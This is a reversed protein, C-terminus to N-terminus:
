QISKLTGKPLASVISSKQLTMETNESVAIVIYSDSIKVIRGLIGGATMVEDGKTLSTILNRHEKARKSQPRWVAFYMFVVFIGLMVMLPIGGGPQQAGPSTAVDAHVNSIFFSLIDDFNAM